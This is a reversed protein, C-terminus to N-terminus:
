MDTSIPHGKLAGSTGWGVLWASFTLRTVCYAFLQLLQWGGREGCSGLLAGSDKVPDVAKGVRGTDAHGALGAM